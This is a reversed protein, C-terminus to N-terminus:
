EDVAGPVYATTLGLDAWSTMNKKEWSPGPLATWWSVSALYRGWRGTAPGEEQCGILERDRLTGLVGGLYMSVSYGSREKATHGYDSVLQAFDDPCRHAYAAEVVGYEVWQGRYTDLILPLEVDLGFQALKTAAKPPKPPTPLLPFSKWTYPGPENHRTTHACTYIVLGDERQESTVAEADACSQCSQKTIM